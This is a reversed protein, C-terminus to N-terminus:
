QKVSHNAKSLFMMRDNKLSCKPNKILALGNRKLSEQGCYYIYHDHSNFAGMGTWKLKSTGLININVRAMKQKIVHLRGQNMSRVNWTAICYQEKYFQVSSGDGTVDVVPCKSQSWRKRRESTIEGSKELLMKPM